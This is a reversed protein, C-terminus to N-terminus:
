GAGFTRRNLEIQPHNYEITIFIDFWTGPFGRSTCLESNLKPGAYPRPLETPIKYLIVLKDGLQRAEVKSLEGM